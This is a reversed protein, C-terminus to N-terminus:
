DRLIYEIEKKLQIIKCIKKRPTPIYMVTNECLTTSYPVFNNPCVPSNADIYCAFGHNDYIKLWWRGKNFIKSILYIKDYKKLCVKIESSYDPKEYCFLNDGLVYCYNDLDILKTNSNIFGIFFNDELVEIWEQNDEWSSYGLEVIGGDRIKKIATHSFGKGSYVYTDGIVMKKM